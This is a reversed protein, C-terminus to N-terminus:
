TVPIVSDPLLGHQRYINAVDPGSFYEILDRALRNDKDMLGIAYRTTLNHSSRDLEVREFYEPFIRCYRLALHSYILAVDAHGDALCQPAERHHILSGFYTRGNPDLLKTIAHTDVITNESMAEITSRYVSYSAKETQPNSMFLRVDDRFLDSVAYIGLPNGKTVLLDNGVSQAFVKFESVAQKDALSMIIDVPGIVVEPKATLLLNGLEIGGTDIWDLYVKPPTTCYFLSTLGQRKRFAELADELAMHHNGDSFVRLPAGSPDGHFDLCLNSSAHFWRSAAINNKDTNERPWSLIM